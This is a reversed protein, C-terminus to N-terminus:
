RENYIPIFFRGNYLIVYQSPYLKLKLSRGWWVGRRAASPPASFILLHPGVPRQAAGRTLFLYVESNIM